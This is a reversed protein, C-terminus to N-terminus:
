KRTYKFTKTFRSFPKYLFSVLRVGALVHRVPVADRTGRRGTRRTDVLWEFQFPIERALQEVVDVIFGSLEIGGKESIVTIDSGATSSTPSADDSQRRM